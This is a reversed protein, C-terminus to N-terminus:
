AMDATVFVAAIKEIDVHQFGIAIIRGIITITTRKAVPRAGIGTRLFHKGNVAM